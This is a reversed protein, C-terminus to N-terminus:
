VRSPPNMIEDLSMARPAGVPADGDLLGTPVNTVRGAGASAQLTTELLVMLDAKSDRVNFPVKLDTLQKVVDSKTVYNEANAGADETRNLTEIKHMMVDTHSQPIEAKEQYVDSIIKNQLAMLQEPTWLVSGNPNKHSNDVVEAGRLLMQQALNRALKIGVSYPLLKSEGAAVFIPRGDFAAGMAPTFDFKALNTFKVVRYDNPNVKKESNPKM